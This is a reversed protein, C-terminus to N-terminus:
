VVLEFRRLSPVRDFHPDNSAIAECGAKQMAAVHLADRPRLAYREMLDFMSDADDASVDLLILNPFQRLLRLTPMIAPHFETVMKQEEDRLRDLASGPYKDRIAALLLRYALEDFTLVSTYATIRGQEISNFFSQLIPKAKAEARVFVYLMMTDLYVVSENFDVLSVAM